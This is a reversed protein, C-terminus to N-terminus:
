TTKGSLSCPRYKRRAFKHPLFVYFVLFPLGAIFLYRAAQVAYLLWFQAKMEFQSSFSLTFSYNYKGKNISCKLVM